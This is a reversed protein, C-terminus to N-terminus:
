KIQPNEFHLFSKFINQTSRYGTNSDLKGFIFNEVKWKGNQKVLICEDDWIVIPKFETNILKLHLRITDNKITSNLIKYENFGEYLSSFVDGEIIEPKDTPFNSQKINEASQKEKEKALDIYYILNNSLLQEPIKRYNKEQQYSYNFSEFTKRVEIDDSNVCSVTIYCGIILYIFKAM